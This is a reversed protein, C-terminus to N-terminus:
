GACEWAGAGSDAWIQAAIDTQEAPSADEPNGEGGYLDWTSPLIQYAGGAGSSPNVAEFNGGSECMVIAEPIAYDGFWDAVEGQAQQASIRELRQVEGAWDGVQAQLSEVAAQRQARLAALQSARAEAEARVAAIQDRAAEIQENFDEARQQADEVAALRKSVDDRLTRVRTVLSADAEEIRRLYEARTQLDDYGDAELLITTADPMGGRYIDVLRGSLANLGRQLQARAAALADRTQAVQDELRAERERGAELVASLQAEREAAVIAEQQTAALEATTQDIQAGLAQAQDKAGAIQSNLEDISQAGLAHSAGAGVLAVALLAAITARIPSTRRRQPAQIHTKATGM